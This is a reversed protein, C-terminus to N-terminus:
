QFPPLQLDKRQLYIIQGEIIGKKPAECASLMYLYEIYISSRGYDM